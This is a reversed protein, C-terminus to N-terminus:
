DMVEWDEALLDSQSAVWPVFQGEATRFLLYPSFEAVTGQPVGIAQATNENVPIGEPYGKQLVVYMGLGNWGTRTLKYGMRILPLADEFGLGSSHQPTPKGFITVM